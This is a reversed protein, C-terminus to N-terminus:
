KKPEVVLYRRPEEGKSYTNVDFDSLATHIILREYSNMPELKQWRGTREVKKGIREALSILAQKRKEKYNEVDISIRKGDKSEKLAVTNTLYQIAKLAEGRYGILSGANEGEIVVETQKETENIKVDVDKNLLEVLGKVFEVGKTNTQKEKSETKKTEKKAEKKAEKVGKKVTKKVENKIEKKTEKEEKKTAKKAEKKDEETVIIVKAKSFLGGESVIKIDVDEQKVNLKDLGNKIADQLNRGSFEYDSM